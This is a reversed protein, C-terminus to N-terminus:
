SLLPRNSPFSKAQVSGEPCKWGAQCAREAEPLDGIGVVCLKSRGARAGDWLTASAMPEAQGRRQKTRDRVEEDKLRLM